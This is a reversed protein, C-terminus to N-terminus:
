LWTVVLVVKGHVIGYLMTVVKYEAHSNLMYMKNKYGLVHVLVQKCVPTLLCRETEICNVTMLVFSEIMSAILILTSEKCTISHIEHIAHLAWPSNYPSDIHNILFTTM